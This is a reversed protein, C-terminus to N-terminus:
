NIYSFVRVAEVIHQYHALGYMASGLRYVESDREHGSMIITLSNYFCNGDGSAPTFLNLALNM